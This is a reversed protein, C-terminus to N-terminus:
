RVLGLGIRLSDTYEDYTILSEGYGSFWQMQLYLDFNGDGIARLPYTLDFQMSGHEGGAGLRGLASAQFGDAWGTSIRLDCYGRFEEIDTNNEQGSMYVYFKPAVQTTFGKADGFHLVPRVYLMNISRSEADDQGNSEHQLGVQLGVQEVGPLKMWDVQDNSWALEPKYNTDTFPKSRGELDWLGTQTYGLYLGALLPVRSAWPGEPNFIQYQFSFQFRVNPRDTGGLFYMPEYPRFRQLAAEAFRFGGPAASVANPDRPSNPDEGEKPSKMEDQPDVPSVDIVTPAASIRLAQLVVRGSVEPPLELEYKVFLIEQPALSAAHKWEGTRALPVPSRSLPTVIEADIQVPPMFALPVTGTNRFYAGVDIRSGAEVTAAPPSLSLVPETPVEQGVLSLFWISLALMPSLM